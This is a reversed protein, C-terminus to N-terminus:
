TTRKTKKKSTPGEKKNRTYKEKIKTPQKPKNIVPLTEDDKEFSKYIRKSIKQRGRSAVGHWYRKLPLM